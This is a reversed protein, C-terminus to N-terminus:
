SPKSPETFAHGWHFGLDWQGDTPIEWVLPDPAIGPPLYSYSVTVIAGDQASLMASM